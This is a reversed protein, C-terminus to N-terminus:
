FFLTPLLIFIAFNHLDSLEKDPPTEVGYQKALQFGGDDDGLSATLDEGEAGDDDSMECRLAEEIREECMKDTEAARKLLRNVERTRAFRKQELEALRAEIQLQKKSKKKGKASM